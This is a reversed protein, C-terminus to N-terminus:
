SSRWRRSRPAWARWGRSSCASSRPWSRGLAAGALTGALASLEAPLIWSSLYGPMDAFTFEKVAPPITLLASFYAGAAMFAVQGFSIVGSNGSFIQLGLVLMMWIFLRELEDALFVDGAAEVALLTAVVVLSLVLPTWVSRIRRVVSM